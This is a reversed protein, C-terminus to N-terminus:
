PPHSACRSQSTSKSHVQLSALTTVGVTPPAEYTLLHHPGAPPGTAIRAELTIWWRAFCAVSRVVKGWMQWFIHLKEAVVM